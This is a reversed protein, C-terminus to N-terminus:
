AVTVPDRAVVQRVASGPEEGLGRPLNMRQIRAGADLQEDIVEAAAVVRDDRTQSASGSTNAWLMSVTGRIKM